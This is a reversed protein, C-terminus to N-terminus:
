YLQAYHFFITYHLYIVQSYRGALYHLDQTRKITGYQRPIAQVTKRMTPPTKGNEGGSIKPLRKM